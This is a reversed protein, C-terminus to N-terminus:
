APRPTPRDSARFHKSLTIGQEYYSAGVAPGYLKSPAALLQEYILRGVHQGHELLVPVEHSRVELVARTGQSARGTYGFGPDFFGAYHMRYEGFSPDYSVLEAALNRPVRIREKSGLIYFEAPHLIIRGSHPRRIPEWFEIPDYHGIKDLDIVPAGRIARYGIFQEPEDGKLDISIWLGNAIRARAPEDEEGYALAETRTVEGLMADSRRAVGRMLRLQNLRTGKHVLISFSRPAVEVYLPGRYGPKVLDFQDGFDTILRTFVDLRGLSSKPNARGSMRNPLDLRELLPIIYVCGKQLISPADLRLIDSTLDTLKDEVTSSASLFSARVQHAVSGLRLDLSAPQFQEEIVAEDSKITKSDVLRKLAEDPLIGVDAALPELGPFLPPQGALPGDFFHQSDLSPM